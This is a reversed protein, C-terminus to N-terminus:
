SMIGEKVTLIKFREEGTKRGDETAIVEIEGLQKTELNYRIRVVKMQNGVRVLGLASDTLIVSKEELKVEESM